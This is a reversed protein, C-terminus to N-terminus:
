FWGQVRGPLYGAAKKREKLAPGPRSIASLQLYSRRAAPCCSVPSVTEDQPNAKGISRIQQKARGKFGHGYVPKIECIAPVAANGATTSDRSM